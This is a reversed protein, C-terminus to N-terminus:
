RVKGEGNVAEVRGKWKGERGGERGLVVEM